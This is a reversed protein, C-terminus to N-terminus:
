FARTRVQIVRGNAAVLVADRGSRYWHAGRTPAHLRYARWNPLYRYNAAHRRDFREGAHWNRYAPPSTVTRSTVVKRGDHKYAVRATERQVPAANAAVAALPSLSVTAALATLMLKNM